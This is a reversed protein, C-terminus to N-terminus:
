FFHIQDRKLFPVAAHRLFTQIWTSHNTEINKHWIPELIWNSGKASRIPKVLALHFKWFQCCHSCRFVNPSKCSFLWRLIGVQTHHFFPVASHRLFTLNWTPHNRGGSKHWIPELIWDSGKVGRIRKVLALHLEWFQCSYPCRFVNPNKCSFIWCLIGVQAYHFFPVVSQRFFSQIWTPHNRGGSKHWMPELILDLGIAARLRKVLALHLM